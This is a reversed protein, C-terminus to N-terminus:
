DGNSSGRGPSACSYGEGNRSYVVRGREAAAAVSAGGGRTGRDPRGQCYPATVATDRRPPRGHRDDARSLVSVLQDLVPCPAGGLEYGARGAGEVIRGLHDRGRRTVEVHGVAIAVGADM